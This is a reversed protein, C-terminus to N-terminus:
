LAYCLVVVRVQALAHLFTGVCFYVHGIASLAAQQAAVTGGAAYTWVADGYKTICYFNSGASFYLRDSADMVLRSVSNGLDKVWITLNTQSGVYPSRATHFLDYSTM